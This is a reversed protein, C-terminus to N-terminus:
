NFKISDLVKQAINKSEINTGAFFYSINYIMNNKVLLFGDITGDAVGWSYSYTQNGWKTVLKRTVSPGESEEGGIKEIESVYKNIVQDLTLNEINQYGTVSVHQEGWCGGGCGGLDSTNTPWFDLSITKTQTGFYSETNFTDIKASWESKSSGGAVNAVYNPVEISVKLDTDYFLSWGKNTVSLQNATEEKKCNCETEKQASCETNNCQKNIITRNNTSAILGLDKGFTVFLLTPVFLLVVFLGLLVIIKHTKICSVDKLNTEKSEKEKLKPELNEVKEM